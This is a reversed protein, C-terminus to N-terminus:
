GSPPRRDFWPRASELQAALRFLTAEDGWPAQFHVGIPLGADSWALPVSMAPAGTINALQTFPAKGLTEFALRELLGSSLLLRGARLVGAAALAASQTTTPKLEGIRVPPTAITPTVYVDFESHFDAMTRAFTNWSRRTLVYDGSSLSRGVAALARTSAELQRPRARGFERAIWQVDAATQGFYLTLYARALALGDIPPAAENVDHGLQELLAAAQQVARVCEPHVDNGLPSRTSFAIRLRPPTDHIEQLYPREPQAIQYPDGPAPGAIADLLAASDRVSRSLALSCVAGEWIEGHEPGVPVRGRSPKLAFLGCCSAPIRLSGGGDSGSAMPVIGAAVAAAAGGSSGGPTHALHWPNRTPGYAEPETVAMLGFEPVNTSGFPVLGAHLYREVVESSRPPAYDQLAASGCTYPAGALRHVIDKLLFPVGRFPGDPLPQRIQARARDDLRHVIANLRPNRSDARRIAEELLEAPTVDGRRVLEALGLADHRDYDDATLPM